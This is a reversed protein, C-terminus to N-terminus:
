VGGSDCVVDIPIGDTKISVKYLETSNGYSKNNNINYIYFDNSNNGTFDEIDIDSKFVYNLTFNYKSQKVRCKNSNHNRWGCHSCANNGKKQKNPQKKGYRGEYNNPKATKYNKYRYKGGKVNGVQMNHSDDEKSFLRIEMFLAKRLAEDLSIKEDEECLREFIKNNIGM